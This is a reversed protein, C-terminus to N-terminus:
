EGRERAPLFGHEGIVSCRWEQGPPIQGDLCSFEAHAKGQKAM